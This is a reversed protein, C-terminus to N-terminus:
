RTGCNGVIVNTGAPIAGDTFLGLFAANAAAIRSAPIYPVLVGRSTAYASVTNTCYTELLVEQLDSTSGGSFTSATFGTPYPPPTLTPKEPAPAGVTITFGTQALVKGSDTATGDAATARVEVLFEAAGDSNAARYTFVLEGDETLAAGAPRVVGDGSIQTVTVSQPGTPEGDEDLVTATISTTSGPDVRDPADVSVSAALEMPTTTAPEEPEPAPPPAEAGVRVTFSTRALVKGTSVAEGDANTARVEVDFEATGDRSAARYTFKHQGDKTVAPGGSRLVGDGSIKTVTISQAGARVGEDDVVTATIETTSGPDVREPNNVSVANVAGAVAITVQVKQDAKAIPAAGVVTVVHNGRTADSATGEPNPATVQIVCKGKSNTGESCAPIDNATGAPNKPVNRAATVRVANTGPGKIADDGTGLNPNRGSIGNDAGDTVTVVIFVSGGVEISGQEAEATITKADGFFTVTKTATFGAALVTLTAPGPKGTGRVQIWGGNTDNTVSCAQSVVQCNPDFGTTTFGGGTVTISITEGAFGQAPDQNDNLDVKFIAATDNSGDSKAPRSDKSNGLLSLTIGTARLATGTIQIVIRQSKDANVNEVNLVVSTNAAANDAIDFQVIIDDSDSDLDCSARGDACNLTKEGGSKFTGTSRGADTVSFRYLTDTVDGAGLDTIQIYVSEGGRATPSTPIAVDDAPQAADSPDGAEDTCDGDPTTTKDYTGDFGTGTPCTIFSFEAADAATYARLLVSPMPTQDEATQAVVSSSRPATVLVAFAVAFAVAVALGYVGLKTVTSM